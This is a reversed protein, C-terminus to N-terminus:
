IDADKHAPRVLFLQKRHLFFTILLFTSAFLWGAPYSLSRGINGYRPILWFACLANGLLEGVGSFMSLRSLGVSDFLYRIPYLVSLFVYGVGQWFWFDCGYAVIQADTFLRGYYWSGLTAYILFCLLGYGMSCLLSLRFFRCIRDGRGAGFNQPCFALIASGFATLVGGLPLNVNLVTIYDSTLLRNTQLTVLLYGLTCLANQLAIPVSYRLISGVLQWNPRFRAGARFYGDRRFSLYYFVLQMLAGLAGCLAAGVFKMHLVDLMLWVALLNTVIVLINVGLIRKATGIGNVTTLFFAALAVPLYSAMYLIYYLRTDDYISAPISMIHLVPQTLLMMLLSGGVCALAMTLLANEILGTLTDKDQLAFQHAIKVWAALYVSSIVNVYLTVAVNLYGTVTFYTQGAYQSYITSSVASSFVSVVNVLFLPLFIGCLARFPSIHLYDITKGHQRM